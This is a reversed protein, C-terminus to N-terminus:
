GQGSLRVAEAGHKTRQPINKGRRLEWLTREEETNLFIRLPPSSM